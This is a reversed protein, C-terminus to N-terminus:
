RTELQSSCTSSRVSFPTCHVLVKHMPWIYPSPHSEQAKRSHTYLSFTMCRWVDLRWFSAGHIPMNPSCRLNVCKMTTTRLSFVAPERAQPAWTPFQLNAVRQPGFADRRTADDDELGQWRYPYRLRVSFPARQVMVADTVNLLYVM